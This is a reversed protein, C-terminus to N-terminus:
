GMFGRGFCAPCFASSKPVALGALSPARACLAEEWLQRPLPVGHRAGDGFLLLPFFVCVCHITSEWSSM